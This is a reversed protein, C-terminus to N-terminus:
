ADNKEIVDHAIKFREPKDHECMMAGGHERLMLATRRKLEDAVEDMQEYDLSSQEMEDILADVIVALDM